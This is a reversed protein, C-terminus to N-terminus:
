SCSTVNWLVSLDAVVGFSIVEELATEWDAYKHLEQKGM